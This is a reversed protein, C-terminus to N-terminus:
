RPPPPPDDPLEEIEDVNIHGWESMEDDMIKLYVLLGQYPRLDWYRWTM